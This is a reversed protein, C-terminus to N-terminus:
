FNSDVGPLLATRTSSPIKANNAANAVATDADLSQPALTPELTRADTPYVAAGGGIWYGDMAQRPYYRGEIGVGKPCM